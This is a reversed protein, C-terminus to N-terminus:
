YVKEEAPFKFAQSKYSYTAKIVDSADDVSVDINEDAIVIGDAPVVGYWKNKLEQMQDLLTEPNFRVIQYPVVDQFWQQLLRLTSDYNINSQKITDVVDVFNIDEGVIKYVFIRLFRLENEDYEKNMIGATSNRPNKAEPHLAKYLSFDDFSMLVEGRIAGNFSEDVNNSKHTTNSLIYRVKDTVDIGIKGDGRTLASVLYGSKYYLVISIGDLKLSAVVPKNIINKDAEKWNHFKDLSGVEGYKHEVKQGKTSDASPDYGWGTKFITSDPNVERLEEVAADFEADTMDQSGDTYYKQANERIRDELAKFGM